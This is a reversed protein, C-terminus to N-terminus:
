KIMSLQTGDIIQILSVADNVVIAAPKVLGAVCQIIRINSLLAEMGVVKVDEVLERVVILVDAVAVAMLGVVICHIHDSPKIM